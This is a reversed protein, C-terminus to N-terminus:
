RLLPSLFTIVRKWSSGGTLGVTIPPWMRPKCGSAARRACRRWWRRAMPGAGDNSTLVLLPTGVLAAARPM